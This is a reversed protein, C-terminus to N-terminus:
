NIIRRVADEYESLKRARKVERLEREQDPFLRGLYFWLEKLKFLVDREGSLIAQYREQLDQLFAALEERQLPEQGQIERALAPNALLGRGLMITDVEPFQGSFAQVDETTCLDGNYCIPCSLKEKMIRFAELNPTNAYFDERLRPHIIVESFPYRAFLEALPVVEKADKMGIRTKISIKPIHSCAFVEGFFEDLKKVDSLLGAGKGKTVVTAAPCGLNLNVEEYGWKALEQVAWIFDEARNALVQPVVAGQVPVIEQKERNKFRHNQNAVLFPTFYRDVGSFHQRFVSRYTITTIGEMPAFYIHKM